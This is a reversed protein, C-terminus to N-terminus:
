RVLYLSQNSVEFEDVKTSTLVMSTAEHAILRIAIHLHLSEVIVLGSPWDWRTQLRNIHTHISDRYRTVAGLGQYM